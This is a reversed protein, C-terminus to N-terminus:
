GIKHPLHKKTPWSSCRVSPEGRVEISMKGRRDGPRLVIEDILTGLIPAAKCTIDPESNLTEELREIKQRFLKTLKPPRVPSSTRSAADLGAKEREFQLLAERLAPTDTGETIALVIRGIKLKIENLMKAAHSSAESSAAQLRKLELHFERIFEALLEPNLLRKKIGALVRRELQDVSIQKGNTCTGRERHTACGYKGPRVAHLCWWVRWVIPPWVPSAEAAQMQSGHSSESPVEM